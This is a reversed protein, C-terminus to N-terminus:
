LSVAMIEKERGILRNTDLLYIVGPLNLTKVLTSYGECRTNVQHKYLVFDLHRNM